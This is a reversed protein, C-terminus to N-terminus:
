PRRCRCPTGGGVGAPVGNCIMLTCVSLLPRASTEMVSAVLDVAVSARSLADVVAVLEHFFFLPNRKKEDTRGAVAPAALLLLLWPLRITSQGKLEGIAVM